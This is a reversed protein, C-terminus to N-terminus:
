PLSSSLPVELEMRSWGKTGEVSDLPWSPPPLLSCCDRCRAFLSGSLARITSKKEETYPELAISPPRVCLPVTATSLFPPRLVRRCDSCLLEVMRGATGVEGIIMSSSVSAVSCSPPIIPSCGRVTFAVSDVLSCIDDGNSRPQCARTDAKSAGPAVPGDSEGKDLFAVSTPGAPTNSEAVLGLLLGVAMFASSVRLGLECLLESGFKRARVLHIRILLRNRQM